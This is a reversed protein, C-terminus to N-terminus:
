LTVDVMLTSIVRTVIVIAELPLLRILQGLHPILRAALVGLIMLIIVAKVFNVVIRVHELTKASSNIM